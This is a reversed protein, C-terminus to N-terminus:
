RQPSGPLTPRLFPSGGSRSAIAPRGSASSICGRPSATAVHAFSAAGTARHADTCMWRPTDFYLSTTRYAGGLEPQGHPDAKLHTRAWREVEAALAEDVLFKLEYAARRERAPGALSPSEFGEVTRPPSLSGIGQIQPAGNEFRDRRTIAQARRLERSVRQAQRCLDAAGNRSGRGPSAPVASPDDATARQFAEFSTLKRTDAKIESEILSRFKAVVPGLKAWDLSDQAIVKVNALYKARLSPVALMRSRLPKRMDNMGILPDLEYGSGRM